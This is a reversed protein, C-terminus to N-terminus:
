GFMSDEMVERHSTWEENRLIAQLRLYTEMLSSPVLPEDKRYWPYEQIQQLTAVIADVTSGREKWLIAEPNDNTDEGEGEEKEELGEALVSEFASQTLESVQHLDQYFRFRDLDEFVPLTPLQLWVLNLLSDVLSADAAGIRLLALACEHGLAGDNPLLSRLAHVVDDNNSGLLGLTAVLTQRLSVDQHLELQAVLFPLAGKARPGFFGIVQCLSEFQMLGTEEKLMENTPFAWVLGTLFDEVEDSYSLLARHITLQLATSPVELLSRLLPVVLDARKGIAGLAHIAATGLGEPDDKVVQVLEPVADVSREGLRGLCLAALSRQPSGWHDEEEGLIQRLRLIGRNPNPDLKALAFASNVQIIPHPALLHEEVRSILMPSSVGMLGLAELVPAKMEPVPHDLWRLLAPLAPEADAGLAGIAQALFPFAYLDQSACQEIYFPLVMEAPASVDVMAKLIQIKLMNHPTHQYCPIWTPVVFAAAEGFSVLLELAQSVLTPPLSADVLASVLSVYKGFDKLRDWPVELVFSRFPMPARSLPELIDRELSEAFEENEWLHLLAYSYSEEYEDWRGAVVLSRIHEFMEASM